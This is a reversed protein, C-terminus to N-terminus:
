PGPRTDAAAAGGQRLDERTNVNFFARPDQFSVAVAGARRQWADVRRGGGQLYALLDERLRIALLMCVPQWRGATEAVAAPAGAATAAQLLRAVMDEPLCPTDCPAVALWPTGVEAMASIVGALPGQFGDLEPLDSVVQGYAAYARANRNASILVREVQPALRDRVCEVMPRGGWSLLGKDAGGMREGRGGALILGTV